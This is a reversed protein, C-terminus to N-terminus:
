TVDNGPVKESEGNRHTAFWRSLDKIMEPELPQPKRRSCLPVADKLFKHLFLLEWYAHWIALNITKRVDPWGTLTPLKDWYKPTNKKINQGPQPDGSESVM